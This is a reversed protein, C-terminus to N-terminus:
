LESFEKELETIKNMLDGNILNFIQNIVNKGVTYYNGNSCDFSVYVRTESKGDKYNDILKKQAKNVEDIRNRLETGKQLQEINMSFTIKSKSCLYSFFNLYGFIIGVKLM